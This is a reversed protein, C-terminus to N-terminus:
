PSDGGNGFRNGLKRTVVTKASDLAAVIGSGLERAESTGAIRQAHQWFTHSGIQVFFALYLSVVIVVSRLWFRAFFQGM